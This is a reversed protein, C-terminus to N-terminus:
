AKGSGASEGVLREAVKRDPHYFIIKAPAGLAQGQWIVPQQEGQAFAFRPFMSFTAAVAGGVLVRRRTISMITEKM